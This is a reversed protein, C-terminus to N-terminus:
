IYNFNLFPLLLRPSDALDLRTNHGDSLGFYLFAALTVVRQSYVACLPSSVYVVLFLTTVIYCYSIPYILPTKNIQQSAATKNLVFRSYAACPPSWVCVVLLLNTLLIQDFIYTTNYKNTTVGCSQELWAYQVISNLQGVPRWFHM